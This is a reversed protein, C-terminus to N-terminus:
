RRDSARGRRRSGRYTAPPRNRWLWIQRGAARYRQEAGPPAARRLRGSCHQRWEDFLRRQGCAMLSAQAMTAASVTTPKSQTGNALRDRTGLRSYAGGRMPRHMQRPTHRRGRFHLEILLSSGSGIMRLRVVTYTPWVYLAPEEKPTSQGCRPYRSGRSVRGIAEVKL